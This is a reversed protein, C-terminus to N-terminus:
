SFKPEFRSTITVPVDAWVVIAGYFKIPTTLTYNLTLKSSFDTEYDLTINSVKYQVTGEEGYAVYVGDEETLSCNSILAKIYENTWLNDTTDHNDRVNNYIAISNIDVYQDLTHKAQQKQNSITNIALVFSLMFSIILCLVVVLVCWQVQSLAKKNGLTNNILNKKLIVKKM